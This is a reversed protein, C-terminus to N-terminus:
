VGPPMARGAVLGRIRELTAEALLFSRCQTCRHATIDPHSSIRVPELRPSERRYDGICDPCRKGDDIATAEWDLRSADISVNDDLRDLSDPPVWLLECGGCRFVLIDEFLGHHESALTERCGPCFM